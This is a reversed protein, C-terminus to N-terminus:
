LREEPCLPCTERVGPPADDHGEERHEHRKDREYERIAQYEDFVTELDDVADEALELAQVTAHGNKRLSEAAAELRVVARGFELMESHEDAVEEADDIVV